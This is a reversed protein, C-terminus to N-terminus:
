VKDVQQLPITVKVFIVGRLNQLAIVNRQGFAILCSGKGANTSKQGFRDIFCIRGALLLVADALKLIHQAWQTELATFTLAIGNGHHALTVLWQNIERGYPPNLWVRGKWPLMLGDQGKDFEYHKKATNFPRFSETCPDLDFEGLADFFYKPTFWTNTKGQHTVSDCSYFSKSM